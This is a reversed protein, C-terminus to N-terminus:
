AAELGAVARELRAIAEDIRGVRERADRPFREVTNAWRALQNVNTALGALDRRAALLQRVLERRQASTWGDGALASEVLLRSVSVGQEAALGQLRAEQDALVKVKHAIVRGGRVSRQRGRVAM